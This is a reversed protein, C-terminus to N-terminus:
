GIRRRRRLAVAFILPLAYELGLLGCGNGWVQPLTPPVENDLNVCAVDPAAFNYNPDTSTVPGTVITYPVSFDLVADDVGTVTVVHPINWGGIGTLASYAQGGTTTFQLSGPSVTGEAPNSSTLTMNVAATPQTNLQVTFTDTGGSETTVLGSTRSITIGPTDNDNNVCNLTPITVAGFQGTTTITVTYPHAPDVVFDDVGTLTLPFTQGISVPGNITFMMTGNLPTSSQGLASATAETPLNVTVTFNVMQGAALAQNFTVTAVAQAGNENTQLGNQPNVTVAPLVPTVNATNSPPGICISIHSTAQIIYNYQVGLAVANDTYAVTAGSPIIALVQMPVVPAGSVTQRSLIYGTANASATWTLNVVPPPPAIPSTATLTPAVPGPPPRLNAAPITAATASPPGMWQLNISAGGNGEEYEVRMDIMGATLNQVASTDFPNPVGRQCWKDLIPTQSGVNGVWTREGDDSGCLFTYAGTTPVVLRGTWETMFYDSSLNNLPPKVAVFDINIPGDLQEGLLVFGPVVPPVTMPSTPSSGPGNPPSGASAQNFNTNAPISYYTGLLGQKEAVPAPDGVAQAGATRAALM